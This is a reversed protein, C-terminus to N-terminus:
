SRVAQLRLLSGENRTVIGELAVLRPAQNFALTGEGLHCTVAQGGIAAPFEHSGHVPELCGAQVGVEQQLPVQQVDHVGGLVQWIWPIRYIGQM